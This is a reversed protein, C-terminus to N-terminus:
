IGLSQCFRLFDGPPAFSRPLNGRLDPRKAEKQALKEICDRHQGKIAYILATYGTEREFVHANRGAELNRLVAVIDAHGAMAALMLATQGRRNCLGKESSALVRVCNRQGARAAIMLATENDSNRLGKEDSVLMQCIEANGKQAAIMLATYGQSNHLGKQTDLCVFAQVLDNSDAALMLNTTTGEVAIGELPPRGGEYPLLTRAISYHNALLALHLATYGNCTQFGAEYRALFRVAHENNKLAAIMLATLGVNNQKGFDAEYESFEIVSRCNTLRPQKTNCIAEMLRTYGHEGAHIVVDSLTDFKQLLRDAATLESRLRILQNPLMVETTRDWTPSTRFQPSPSRRSKSSRASSLRRHPVAPARLYPESTFNTVTPTADRDSFGQDTVPEPAKRLRQSGDTCPLPSADTVSITRYLTAILDDREQIKGQLAEVKLNLAELERKHTELTNQIDVTARTQTLRLAEEATKKERQVNQLQTMVVQFETRLCTLSTRLNTTEQTLPPSTKLHSLESELSQIIEKSAALEGNLIRVENSLQAVVDNLETMRESSDPQGSTDKEHMKRLLEENALRLDENESKLVSMAETRNCTSLRLPNVNPIEQGVPVQTDDEIYSEPVQLGTHRCAQQHVLVVSPFRGEHGLFLTILLAQLSGSVGPLSSLHSRLQDETYNAIECTQHTCVFYIIQALQPMVVSDVTIHEDSVLLDNALSEARRNLKAVKLSATGPCAPQLRYCCLDNFEPIVVNGATDIFITFVSLNRLLLARGKNPLCGGLYIILSTLQLLLGWVNEETPSSHETAEALSIAHIPSYILHLAGRESIREVPQRIAPHTLACVLDTRALARKHEQPDDFLSPCAYTVVTVLSGDAGRTYPAYIGQAEAAEFLDALPPAM